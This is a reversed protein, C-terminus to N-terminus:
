RLTSAFGFASIAQYVHDENLTGISRDAECVKVARSWLSVDKWRIAAHCVSQVVEVSQSATARALIIETLETEEATPKQSTSQRIAKCAYSFGESGHVVDFHAWSPWMILVTRRYVASSWKMMGQMVATSVSVANLPAAMSGHVNSM